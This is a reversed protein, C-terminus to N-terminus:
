KGTQQLTAIDKSIADFLYSLIYVQEEKGYGVCIFDTIKKHCADAINEMETYKRAREKYEEQSLAM